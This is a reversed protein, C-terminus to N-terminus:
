LLLIITDICAFLSQNYDSYFLEIIGNISHVGSQIFIM